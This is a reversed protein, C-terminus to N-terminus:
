HFSILVFPLFPIETLLLGCTFYHFHATPVYTRRCLVTAIANIDSSWAVPLMRMLDPVTQLETRERIEFVARGFKVLTDRRSCLQWQDATYSPRSTGTVETQTIHHASSKLQSILTTWPDMKQSGIWGLGDASLDL